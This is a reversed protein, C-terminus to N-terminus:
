GRPSFALRWALMWLLSGGVWPLVAQWSLIGTRSRRPGHRLSRVRSRLWVVLAVVAALFVLSQLSLWIGLLAFALAPHNAGAAVFPPLLALFFLVIKPNLVNTLLGQVFAARWSTVPTASMAREAGPAISNEDVRTGSSGQGQEVGEDRRRAAAWGQCFLGWGLWLLYAAGLWRLLEFVEPWRVLVAALGLSGLIAHLACGTCIGAAAALGQRWGGQWSHQLTLLLDAGPTLNLVFVTVVFLWPQTIEASVGRVLDALM